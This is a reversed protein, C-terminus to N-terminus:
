FIKVAILCNSINEHLNMVYITALIDFEPLLLRTVKSYATKSLQRTELFIFLGFYESTSTKKLYIAPDPM